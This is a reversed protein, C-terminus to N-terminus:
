PAFSRVVKPLNSFDAVVNKDKDLLMLTNFWTPPAPQPEPELTPYDVYSGDARPKDPVIVAPGRYVKFYGFLTLGGPLQWEERVATWGNRMGCSNRQSPLAQLRCRRILESRRVPLDSGIVKLTAVLPDPKAPEAMACGSLLCGTMCAVLAYLSVTGCRM